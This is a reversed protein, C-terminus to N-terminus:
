RKGLMREVMEASDRSLEPTAGIRELQARMLTQRSEDFWRWTDFGSCMRASTQPNLPDLRIIWDAVFRYGEGSPDHFGAPNMSSFGAILSRFRNPNKWDFDPHRALTKVTEVAETPVAHTATLLFWKDIVHDNGQWRKYFRASAGAGKGISLLTGFAALQETMNDAADFQAEAAKGEDRLTLFGLLANRLARKGADRANPQYPGPVAMDTYLRDLDGGLHQAFATALARRAEKIASPDPVNGAEHLAKIMQGVSPLTLTLARFAPDLGDDTAVMGLAELFRSDPPTQGLVMQTLVDQGLTQAAEWKNFPDTDHALLFTRHQAPLPGTLIVPASFGRLLSPIPRTALNEFTFSQERDKLELVTTPVLENGNPNLLGTAIPILQPAKEDQGPTPPNTQRFTLTYTGDKFDDSVEVRPTGSQSYWRKFETLDRGTTDQFVALWDEITCAQGDHRQFYLDLARRYDTEGVITKLMSIVQAGKEYVTATYFNNIEKYEEPRVPHALPGADERFQRERLAQVESIRKVAHSRQDGSFTQDRFVTLGEKLSLQFWDRCTIRNGTWNHFYEHAIIGEILEYDRDTATEPSALVYKSNFINLGKNEMAGMNFDDVAVIQFLDLDYERGYTQEDWAMARKLSDMAYACKDQDGDRVWIKLDVKRGSCTTFRDDFSVLDGAVLAFLYAPKPWPDHWHAAGDARRELNGNSLLVPMDGKITVRFTAMVDPRDPYYTIRRFGEAECQTCYMGKSRYLGSLATNAEPNIEVEAQWTFSDPLLEAPIRLGTDSIEAKLDKIDRADITATILKLNEGDMHFDGVGKPNRRFTIKSQVRTATPALHFTLDAEDILFAAPQYDALRITKTQSM